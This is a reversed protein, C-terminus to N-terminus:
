QPRGTQTHAFHYDEIRCALGFIGEEDQAEVRMVRVKCELSRELLKGNPDHTPVKLTCTLMEGPTVPVKSLCYFGGSSLDRTLTEIADGTHSRFLLVTWHLRTRARKRREFPHPRKTEAPKSLGDYVSFLELPHASM